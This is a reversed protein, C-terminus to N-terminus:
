GSDAVSIQKLHHLIHALYDNALFSLTVPEGQGIRCKTELKSTPLHAMVHALYRNYAAWLAVLMLWDAEKIAQVSVWGDQEYGPFDLSAQLSARVFRQHNNAASDILHGIVQKSSWGGPLIRKNSTQEEIKRLRPEASEVVRLLKESLNKM